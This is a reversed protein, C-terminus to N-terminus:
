KVKVKQHTKSRVSKQSTIEVGIKRGKDEVKVNVFGHAVTLPIDSVDHPKILTATIYVNPVDEATMKLDVSANRNEINVYQYSIVKDREVTVLMKGSFPTKFLAKVSEGTYY